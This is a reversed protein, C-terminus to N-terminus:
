SDMAEKILKRAEEKSINKSFQVGLKKLLNVQKDSAPEKVPMKAGVQEPAIDKLMNVITGYLEMMEALDYESGLFEFEVSQFNYCPKCKFVYQKEPIDKEFMEEDDLFLNEEKVEPM